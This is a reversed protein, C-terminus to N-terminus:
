SVQWLDIAMNTALLLLSAGIVQNITRVATSSLNKHMVHIMGACVFCWGLSSAMFGSFFVVYHTAEPQNFGLSALAGGMAAWYFITAPNTLSLSAGASFAGHRALTKLENEPLSPPSHRHAMSRLGLYALYAAGALTLPLRVGPIQFVVSAGMLGLAAWAADGILSGFQVYLASHYGGQLGRRLSEAFVAGPAANFIAGLVFASFFLSIM